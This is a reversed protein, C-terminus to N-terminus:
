VIILGQSFSCLTQQSLFIQHEGKSSKWELNLGMISFEGNAYPPAIQSFDNYTHSWFSTWWAKNLKNIDHDFKDALYDQFKKKCLPCFCEGGFENSIHWMALGPHDGVTDIIKNIIIGTKERFKPSSMCHNHRFGHHARHDDANVRMCEPYKEDLWAPRAGSPTALITYIGNEYLKDMINKLWDMHFEGESPEYAAWAFIGVSMSTMKAKKMLEIDKELIDPRDLWQDPNYDSGHLLGKIQPFLIKKSM